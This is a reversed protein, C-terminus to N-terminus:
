KGKKPRKRTRGGVLRLPKSRGNGKPGPELGLKQRMTHWTKPDSLVKSLAQRVKGLERVKVALAQLAMASTKRTPEFDAAERLLEDHRGRLDRLRARSVWPWNIWDGLRGLAKRIRKM